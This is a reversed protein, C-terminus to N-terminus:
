TNQIYELHLKWHHNLKGQLYSLALPPFFSSLFTTTLYTSQYGNQKELHRIGKALPLYRLACLCPLACILIDFISFLVSPLTKQDMQITSSSTSPAKPSGQLHWTIESSMKEAFIFGNIGLTCLNQLFVNLVHRKRGLRLAGKFFLYREESSLLPPTTNQPIASSTPPLSSILKPKSTHDEESSSLDIIVPRPPTPLVHSAATYLEGRAKLQSPPPTNEQLNPEPPPPPEESRPPPNSHPPPNHHNKREGFHQELSLYCQVLEQHHYWQSFGVRSILHFPKLAEPPDLVSRTSLPGIVKEGNSMFWGDLRWPSLAPSKKSTRLHAQKERALCLTIEPWLTQM